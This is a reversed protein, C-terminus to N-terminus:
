RCGMRLGTWRGVWGEDGGGNTRRDMKGGDRMEVGRMRVVTWRGVWGEDGGGNTPRDMKGGDRM